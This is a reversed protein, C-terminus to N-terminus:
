SIEKQIYAWARRADKAVYVAEMGGRYSLSRNLIYQIVFDRETMQSKPLTKKLKWPQKM